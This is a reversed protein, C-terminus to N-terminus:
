PEGGELKRMVADLRASTVRGLVATGTIVSPACACNGLCFVDEIEVVGASHELAHEKLAAGGVAQCAEGMCIKLVPLEPPETRFEDYFRAVGYVEARSFNFVEAALDIAKQDVCGFTEQLAHLAPLLGGRVQAHPGIRNRAINEDWEPWQKM